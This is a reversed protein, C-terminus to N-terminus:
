FIQEKWKMGELTSIIDFFILRILVILELNMFIFNLNLINVVDFIRNNQLYIIESKSKERGKHDNDVV